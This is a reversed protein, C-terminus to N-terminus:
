AMDRICANSCSRASGLGFSSRVQAEDEASRGAAQILSAISNPNRKQLAEALQRVQEELEHTRRQHVRVQQQLQKTTLGRGSKGAGAKGKEDGRTGPPVEAVALDPGHDDNAADGHRGRKLEEVERRLRAVLEDNENM